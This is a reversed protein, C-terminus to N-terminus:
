RVALTVFFRSPIVPEDSDYDLDDHVFICDFGLDCKNEMWRECRHKNRPRYHKKVVPISAPPVPTRESFNKNGTRRLPPKTNKVSVAATSNFTNGTRRLPPKTSPSDDVTANSDSWASEETHIEWDRPHCPYHYAPSEDDSGNTSSSTDSSGHRNRAPDGFGTVTDWNHVDDTSPTLLLSSISLSQPIRHRPPIVTRSIFQTQPLPPSNTRPISPSPPPIKVRIPPDHLGPSSNSQANGSSREAGPSTVRRSAQEQRSDQDDKEDDESDSYDYLNLRSVKVSQAIV